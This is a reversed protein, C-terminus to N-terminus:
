FLKRFIVRVTMAVAVTVAVAIFLLARPLAPWASPDNRDLNRFQRHFKEQIAAFDSDLSKKKAM